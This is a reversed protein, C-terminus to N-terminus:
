RVQIYMVWTSYVCGKFPQMGDVLLSYHGNNVDTFQSGLKEAMRKYSEGATM